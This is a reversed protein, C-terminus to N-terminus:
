TDTKGSLSHIGHSMLKDAISTCYKLYEIFTEHIALYIFNIM